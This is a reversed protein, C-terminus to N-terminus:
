RRRGPTRRAVRRAVGRAVRRAFRAARRPLGRPAILARLRADVPDAAKLIARGPAYWWSGLLREIDDTGRLEGPTTAALEQVMEIVQEPHPGAYRQLWSPYDYVNHVRYPRGLRLFADEAWAVAGPRVAWAANGYYDCKEIVQKPLLLSYHYLHIGRRALDEPRLWNRTRLDRGDSDLVTPPRHTAYTYGPGWKFLRHYYTAGRRLYWGDVTYRLGGWFTIQKFTAATISPDDRLMGIVQAMEEARYFEDIDVQWLYNGTARKAYARSQEHKEGPWWGDPYGEDEATVITIKGDPDEEAKIRRLEALTGDRSHGDPTAINKAGPAAGEVVIIEHAFPYLSRITHATFPEGNLVIIGFTIRPEVDGAGSAPPEDRLAALVDQRVFTFNWGDVAVLEYGRGRVRRITRLFRLAGVPQDIEFCLVRPRVGADLVSAIVTHEAGEIDLKLLDISEHGLEGMVSPITRVSAEFWEHTGQLNVVSHSVHAPDRPAYFRLVTDSSWLGVPMFHFRPQATALGDIFRIARPTPDFAFVECGFREIIGLDFSVDEGVGGCYCRWDPGILATPVIWGGYATGIKELRLEPHKRVLDEVYRRARKLTWARLDVPVSM